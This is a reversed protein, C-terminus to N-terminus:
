GHGITAVKIQRAGAKYLANACANLTSGTTFIDDILIYQQDPIVHTDPILAFANKVNQQRGKRDLQTQTQTYRVRKLVENVPSEAINGLMEAIKQSQNFGREREKDSHLPVPVLQAGSFYNRYHDTAKVMRALDKLVYFGRHYKLEHLLSRAPGKALFLTNGQDFTPNLDACHSCSRPGVLHGFFPYGCITCAPPKSFFIERACARCLFDYGSQEVLGSCHVCSRPFTLDTAARLFQKVISHM